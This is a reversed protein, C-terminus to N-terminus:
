SFDYCLTRRLIVSGLLCLGGASIWGMFLERKFVIAPEIRTNKELRDITDLVEQFGDNDKVRFFHGGTTTAIRQLADTNFTENPPQITLGVPNEGGVGVTHVVIGKRKAIAAAEMPTIEDPVSNEGDTILLITRRTDPTDLLQNIGSTLGAAINTGRENKGLLGPTLLDMQARLFDHDLTPPCGAYSQHGFITLGIRDHPRREIFQKVREKALTLRSPLTGAKAARIADDASMGRDPDFFDMSNSFDIAVAIETGEHTEPVIEVGQRPRALAVVFLAAALFELCLPFHRRAIRSGKTPKGLFHTTSSVAIAAPRSWARWVFGALLPILLLLVYLHLFEPM